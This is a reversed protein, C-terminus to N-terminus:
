ITQHLVGSSRFRMHRHLLYKHAADLVVDLCFVQALVERVETVNDIHVNNDFFFCLAFSAKRENLKIVVIGNILGDTLVM